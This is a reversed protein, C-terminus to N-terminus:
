PNGSESSVPLARRLGATEVDFELIRKVTNSALHSAFKVPIVEATHVHRDAIRDCEPMRLEETGDSKSDWREVSSSREHLRKCGSQSFEVRHWPQDLSPRNCSSTRITAHRTFWYEQRKGQCKTAHHPAPIGVHDATLSQRSTAAGPSQLEAMLGFISCLGMKRGAIGNRTSGM